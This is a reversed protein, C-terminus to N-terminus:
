DAPPPPEAPPPPAPPESPAPVAESGSPAPAAVEPPPASNVTLRTYGVRAMLNGPTAQLAQAYEKAAQQPQGWQEYTLGEFALTEGLWDPNSAFAMEARNFFTIAQSYNKKALWARGLYFYAYSNGPDISVARSLLQIADDPRGDLINKRARDTMRLSAALAPTAASAVLPRLSANSIQLTPTMEGIGLPALETPVSSPEAGAAGPLAAGEQGGSAPTPPIVPSAEAADPPWAQPNPSPAAEPAMAPPAAFPSSEAGNQAAPSAEPTPTATPSPLDEPGINEERFGVLRTARARNASSVAARAIIPAALLVWGAVIARALLPCDLEIRRATM